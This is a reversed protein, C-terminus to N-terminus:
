QLTVLVLVLGRGEELRSMAKGLIAGQAQQYDSVKMAHGSVDSTTLLDGPEIAGNSADAYCYVRGSLAIPQDENTVSDGRNMIVGIQIDGAGSIIGAVTRDYARSSVILEGPNDPDICVVMGPKVTEEAAGNSLDTTDNVEFNESLDAGSIELIKVQITGGPNLHLTSPTEADADSFSQIWSDGANHFTLGGASNGDRVRVKGVDDQAAFLDTNREDTSLILRNKLKM